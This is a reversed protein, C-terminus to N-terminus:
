QAANREEVRGFARGFMHTRCKSLQTQVEREILDGRRDCMELDVHPNAIRLCTPSAVAARITEALLGAVFYFLRIDADSPASFSINSQVVTPHYLM